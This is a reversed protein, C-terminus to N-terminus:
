HPSRRRPSATSPAEPPPAIADADATTRPVSVQSFISRWARVAASRLEARDGANVVVADARSKKSDAPEQAREREALTQESWCRSEMVRQLRLAHPADVFIVRDCLTHWGAEYLIAADLVVAKHEGRRITRDIARECTRRMRPHLIQELDRLSRPDDFVIAGLSRRDINESGEQSRTLITPGFRRVVEERVPRQDLLAHGIRDADLVFAGFEGFLEALASKGSGIGGVIGIVPIRGHKWPGAPRSPRPRNPRTQRRRAAM